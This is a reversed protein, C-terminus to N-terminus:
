LQHGRRRSADVAEPLRGDPHRGGVHLHRQQRFPGDPLRDDNNYAWSNISDKLFHVSGDAFAFNAGGPHFSSAARLGRTQTSMM